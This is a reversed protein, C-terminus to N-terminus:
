AVNTANNGMFDVSKCIKFSKAATRPNPTLSQAESPHSVNEGSQQQYPNWTCLKM